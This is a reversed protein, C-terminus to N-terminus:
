VAWDPPGITSAEPGLRENYEDNLPKWDPPSQGDGALHLVLADLCVHWGAADRAAKGLEDFTDVLTLVTGEGDPRLEFRLVDDAWRLEMLRPPEFALMEGEETPGEAQPFPFRLKAGAAREGEIGSPFWAALHEPETLARWVKEPSHPLRRTFTLAWRDGSASLRGYRDDM